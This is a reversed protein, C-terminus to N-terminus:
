QKGDNNCPKAWGEHVLQEGTLYVLEQSSRANEIYWLRLGPPYFAMVFAEGVLSIEDTYESDPLGDVPVAPHFGFFARPGVCTGQYGLVMTCASFCEGYVPFEGELAAIQAAREFISGGLDTAGEPLPALPVTSCASLLLLAAVKKM